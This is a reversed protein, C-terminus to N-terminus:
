QHSNKVQEHWENTTTGVIIVGYCADNFSEEEKGQLGIM